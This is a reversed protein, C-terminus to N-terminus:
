VDTDHIEFGCIECSLDLRHFLPRLIAELGNITSFVNVLCDVAIVCTDGRSDIVYVLKLHHLEIVHIAHPPCWLSDSISAYLLTEQM